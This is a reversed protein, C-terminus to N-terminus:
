TQGMLWPGFLMLVALSTLLTPMIARTGLHRAVFGLALGYALVVSWIM